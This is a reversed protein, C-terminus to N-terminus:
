GNDTELDPVSYGDVLWSAHHSKDYIDWEQASFSAKDVDILLWALFLAVTQPSLLKHDAKLKLFFARKDEQMHAAERILAQMDTDIIGPMASAFAIDNCELQWCRTLMALAAKSVCYGGWGAVPFYAAGSGISLVRQGNLKDALLQSLFLMPDLNTSLSTYWEDRTMQKLPKIPQITGACHILGQVKSVDKLHAAITECGAQTSVDASLYHINKAQESTKQLCSDRRGIILVSQGKTALCDALAAGIGTGGGTIVFM